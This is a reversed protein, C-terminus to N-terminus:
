ADHPAGQLTTLRDLTPKVLPNTSAFRPKFSQRAEALDAEDWYGILIGGESIRPQVEVSEITGDAITVRQRPQRAWRFLAEHLRAREAEHEPAAGLDTFEHPDTMLDFLMPRYGEALVYKWRGDFIMRLWADRPKTGLEIRSDQFAYDYECVVATAGTPAATRRVAAAAALPRRHRAAGAAGGYVDLFTPALDVAEVLADCRTGRTADARADPDYVILPARIVPEHFLDKEGMWHDGLYDGHDATFVIMTTEMLGREDLFAFLRGLQDDIQKILGMYGPMVADRVGDRSFTRSVRHNMM